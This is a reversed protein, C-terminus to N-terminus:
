QLTTVEPYKAKLSIASSTLAKFDFTGAAAAAAVSVKEKKGSKENIEFQMGNKKSVHLTITTEPKPPTKVQDQSVIQPTPSEIMKIQVFAISLLLMPVISVIIDLFPALNLEFASDGTRTRQIRM